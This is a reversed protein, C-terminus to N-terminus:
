RSSRTRFWTRRTKSSAFSRGIRGAREYVAMLHSNRMKNRKQLNSEGQLIRVKAETTMIFPVQCLSM